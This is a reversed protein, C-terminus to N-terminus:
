LYVRAPFIKGLIFHTDVVGCVCVCVCVRFDLVENMFHITCPLCTICSVVNESSSNGVIIECRTYINLKKDMRVFSTGRIVEKNPENSYDRFAGTTNTM